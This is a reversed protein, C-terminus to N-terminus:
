QSVCCDEGSIHTSLKNSFLDFFPVLFSLLFFFSFDKVSIVAESTNPYFLSTTDPPLNQLQRLM